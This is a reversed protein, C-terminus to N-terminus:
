KINLKFTCKEYDIKIAPDINPIFINFLDKKSSVAQLHMGIPILDEKDKYVPHSALVINDDLLDLKEEFYYQSFENHNRKNNVDKGMNSWATQVILSKKSKDPIGIIEDDGGLFNAIIHGRHFYRQYNKTQKLKLWGVPNGLRRRKNNKQNGNIGVKKIFFSAGQPRHCRDLNHKIFYGTSEQHCFDITPENDNIVYYNSAYTLKEGILKSLQNKDLSLLELVESEKM